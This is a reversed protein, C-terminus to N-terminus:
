RSVVGLKTLVEVVKAAAAPGEGLVVVESPPPPPVTLGARGSGKATGTWTVTDLPAKKAKMRGVVSPYKPSVGGELITAVAPLEVEYVETGDPGEGRLTAISGDVAITQIGAAVPRGLAYALRIGVQFDGTDAADNGLLVIDYATGAAERTTIVEAIAAAVDAPGLTDADAEVLVADHHRLEAAVGRRLAENRHAAHRELWAPQPASAM